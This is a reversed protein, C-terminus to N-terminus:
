TEDEIEATETESPDDRYYDEMLDLYMKDFIRQFYDHPIDEPEITM